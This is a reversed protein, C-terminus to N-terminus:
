RVKDPLIAADLSDLLALANAYSAEQVLEDIQEGWSKMTFSWITSGEATSAARDTPTTIVYLPSKSSPSPTLLRGAFNPVLINPTASKFPIALIQSTALSISSRIDIVSTSVFSTSGPVVSGNEQVSGPVSGAPLISFIYPKVFAVHFRTLVMCCDLPFSCLMGVDEPPAPWDIGATRTLKGDLGVFM